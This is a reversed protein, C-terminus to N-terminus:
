DAFGRTAACNISHTCIRCSCIFGATKFTKRASHLWPIDWSLFTIKSELFTNFLSLSIFSNYQCPHWSSALCPFLKRSWILLPFSPSNLCCHDAGSDAFSCIQPTQKITSPILSIITAFHKQKGSRDISWSLGKAHTWNQRHHSRWAQLVQLNPFGLNWFYKEENLRGMIQQVRSNCKTSTSGLSPIAGVKKYSLTQTRNWRLCSGRRFLSNEDLALWCMPLFSSTLEWWIIKNQSVQTITM